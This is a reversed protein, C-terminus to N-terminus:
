EIEKAYEWHWPEEKRGGQQAWPPNVWGNAPANTQMWKHQATGFSGIGDSLDAALGWGHNSTGPDAALSGLEKKMDYQQQLTRYASRPGSIRINTGFEAKYKENLTEFGCAASPHLYHDTWSLKQLATLPIEGNRYGGWGTTIAESLTAPGDCGTPASGAITTTSVRQFGDDMGENIANDIHYLRIMRYATLESPTMSATLQGSPANAFQANAQDSSKWDICQVGKAKALDVESSFEEDSYTGIPITRDICNEIYELYLPSKPEGTNEDIHGNNIMYDLVDDVETNIYSADIMGIPNCFSDAAVGMAVIEPDECDTYEVGTAASAKAGLIKQPSTIISSFSNLLSNKHISKPMVNYLSFTISGLATYPSSADLPSKDENELAIYELKAENTSTLYETVSDEPVIALARSQNQFANKAGAGSAIANGAENGNEFGTILTGAAMDILKPTLMAIAVGISISVGIQLAAGWGLSLGGTGIAVIAGGIAALIIVGQGWLSKVFGCTADAEDTTSAGGIISILSALVDNGVIQGNVYRTVEDNLQAKAVDEESLQPKSDETYSGGTLSGGYGGSVSPPPGTYGFAANQYGYSDSFSAGAANLSTLTDNVFEAEEPTAAGAMVSDATNFFVHAYRAMTLAGIYKAAFGVTRILRYGTCASDMAGLGFATSLLAGKMTTKAFDGSTESLAKRSNIEDALNGDVTSKSAAAEWAAKDSGFSVERGNEDLGVYSKTGDDNTIERFGARERIAATGNANEVMSKRLAARDNGELNKTKRIGVRDAMHQFSRDAFGAFKPNYAYLLTRKFMRDGEIERVINDATITKGNYELATVKTRGTISTKDGIVKIEGTRELKAVMRNSMTSYKCRVNIAGSCSVVDSKIKKKLIYTTRTDMVALQDNFKNTMVEKLNFLLTSPTIIAGIAFILGIIATTLIGAVGGRKSVVISKIRGSVTMNQALHKPSYKNTWSAGGSGTQESAGIKSLPNEVTGGAEAGSGKASKSEAGLLTKALDRNAPNLPDTNPDTNQNPKLDPM